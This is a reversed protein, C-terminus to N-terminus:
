VNLLGTIHLIHTMSSKLYLEWKIAWLPFVSFQQISPCLSSIISCLVDWITGSILFYHSTINLVIMQQQNTTTFISFLPSSCTFNKHNMLIFYIQCKDWNASVPKLLPLRHEKRRKRQTRLHLILCTIWWRDKHCGTVVLLHTMWFAAPDCSFSHLLTINYLLATIYHVLM